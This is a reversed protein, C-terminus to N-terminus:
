GFDRNRDGSIERWKLDQNRRSILDLNSSKQNHPISKFDLKKFYWKGWNKGDIEREIQGFKFIVDLFEKIGQPNSGYKGNYGEIRTFKKFNTLKSNNKVRYRTFDVVECDRRTLSSSDNLFSAIFLELNGYSLALIMSLFEINVIISFLVVEGRILARVTSTFSSVVWLLDEPYSMDVERLSCALSRSILILFVERLTVILRSVVEM